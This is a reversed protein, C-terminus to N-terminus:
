CYGGAAMFFGACDWHSVAELAFDTNVSGLRWGDSAAREDDEDESAAEEHTVAQLHAGDSAREGIKM